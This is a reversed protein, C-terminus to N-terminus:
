REGGDGSLVGREKRSRLKDLNAQAVNGLNLWGDAAIRAMYWCVDGQEKALDREVRTSDPLTWPTPNFEDFHERASFASAELEDLANEFLYRRSAPMEGGNDRLSKKVHEAAMGLFQAMEIVQYPAALSNGEFEVEACLEGVEGILGLLAYLLGQPTGAGPYIATEDTAKQYANFTLDNM